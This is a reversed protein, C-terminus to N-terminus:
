SRLPIAAFSRFGAEKCETRTCRSDSHIDESYIEKLETAAKGCLCEELPHKLFNDNDKKPMDPCSKTLILRKRRSDLELMFVLDAGLIERIGTVAKEIIDETSLSSSLTNVLTNLSLLDSIRKETDGSERCQNNGKKGM